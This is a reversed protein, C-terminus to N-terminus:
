RMVYGAQVTGLKKNSQDMLKKFFDGGECLDTVLLFRRTDEFYHYMQVLSPHPKDAWKLLCEIENKFSKKDKPEMFDKMMIKVARFEKMSSHKDKKKDKYVCKRVEGYAGEGLLDEIRYYDRM